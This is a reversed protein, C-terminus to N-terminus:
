NLHSVLSGILTHATAREIVIKRYEGISANGKAFVTKKNTDTRGM